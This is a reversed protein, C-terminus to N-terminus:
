HGEPQRAEGERRGGGMNRSTLDVQPEELSKATSLSQIPDPPQCHAPGTSLSPDKLGVPGDITEINQGGHSVWKNIPGAERMNLWSGIRLGSWAPKLKIPRVELTNTAKRLAKSNMKNSKSLSPGRRADM